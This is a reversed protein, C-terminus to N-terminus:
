KFLNFVLLSGLYAMAGMFLFQIIPWKWSKTERKVVALTSMCQMAFVYFILLSLATATSYMPTGDPRLESKMRDSISKSDDKSSGISYITAMTGVFVERAAFSSLLAIGIKWDFGLPKIAPEIAKGFYGAYSIEMKKASIFDTKEAESWNKEASIRDADVNIQAIAASNPSFSALFWLVVSVIMIVKGAETVFSKIKEYVTLGVNKWHPLRYEPLEIALFSSENTKLIKKFVFAASLASVVSLLYLGGFVLGQKNFIGWYENPVVFGVLLAYVPIRASCSILPSVMITILREKWNSITRTSMIAPIACAGSSVLAVISRGNLGFKQMIRDFLYVTRAMYGVEELLTILFFLISIQPIFVLVGSLGAIIGDTLLDAWWVQPLQTKLFVNTDTFITEIWAKPIEAFVFISQFIIFLISFFLLPGMISHTVISDIKDTLNDSKSTNKKFFLRLIPQLRDFRQLTEIIQFRISEFKESETVQRIQAKEFNTLFPLQQGHHALLIARYINDAQPLRLRIEEATKLEISNPQFFMKYQPTGKQTILKLLEAKLEAVGEGTRGNLGVVAVNFKESLIKEDLFVGQQAAIDMMGVGLVLPINLDKLQSFLLLHRELNTLDAIYIVADPFNEDNPNSLINLVVREDQSNPYLSYTGPLDVITVDGGDNPLTMAGVKKDVTVGPFNGVKQRLGTLQNFISSKGANPNGVLAFTFTKNSAM